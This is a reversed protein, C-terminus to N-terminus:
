DLDDLQKRINSKTRLATDRAALVKSPPSIKEVFTEKQATEAEALKSVMQLALSNAADASMLIERAKATNDRHKEADKMLVEAQLELAESRL